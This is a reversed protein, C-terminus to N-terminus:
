GGHKLYRPAIEFSQTNCELNQIALRQGKGIAAKIGHGTLESQHKETIWRTAQRLEMPNEAIASPHSHADRCYRLALEEEAYAGNDSAM